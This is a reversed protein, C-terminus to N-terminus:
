RGGAAPSDRLLRTYGAALLLIVLMLVIAVAAGYGTNLFKFTQLYGYYNAMTTGRAPGGQTLVYVTDFIKISWLTQAILAFVLQYRVGPLTVHVFRSWAGAGDIRAARYLSDPIGQLGAILLLTLFPVLKWLEAFAVSNMALWQTGLWAVNEDLLGLGRGVANLVGWNPDYIFKWMIGNVVPPVAWPVLLLTRAVARGKFQRNLLIALGLAVVLGLVVTVCTFYATRVLAAWFEGTSALRVYNDLGSFPASDPRSEIRDHLSLWGAYGVPYGLIVAVTVVAPLALLLGFRRDGAQVSSRRSTREGLATAM